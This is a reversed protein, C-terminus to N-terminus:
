LGNKKLWPLHREYIDGWVPTSSVAQEEGLEAGGINHGMRFIGIVM